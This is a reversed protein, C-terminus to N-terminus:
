PTKRNFVSNFNEVSMRKRVNDHAVVLAGDHALNENGGTHDGHWHTNAVIRVPAKTLQAVAAKIKATLPAYQDDILLAGGEGYLVGINGGQGELYAVHDALKHTTIVVEKADQQASTAFASLCLLLALPRNM